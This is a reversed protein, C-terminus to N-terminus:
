GKAKKRRELEARAEESTVDDAAPAAAAQPQGISSLMKQLAAEYAAPDSKKLETIAIVQMLENPKGAMVRAKEAGFRGAIEELALKTEREYEQMTMRAKIENAAKELQGEKVMQAVQLRTERDMAQIREASETQMRTQREASETQMRTQREASEAAEVRARGMAEAAGIKTDREADLRAQFRKDAAERENQGIIRDITERATRRGALPIGANGARATQWDLSGEMAERPTGSVRLGMALANERTRQEYDQFVDREGTAGQAQQIGARLDPDIMAQNAMPNFSAGRQAPSAGRQAPGAGGATAPPPKPRTMFATGVGPITASNVPEQGMAEMAARSRRTDEAILPGRFTEPRTLANFGMIMQPSDPRADDIGQEMRWRLYDKVREPSRLAARSEDDMRDFYDRYDTGTEFGNM